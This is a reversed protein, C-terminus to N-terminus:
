FQIHSAGFEEVESLRRKLVILSTLWKVDEDSWEVRCELDERDMTAQTIFDNLNDSIDKIEILKDEITDDTWGRYLNDILEVDIPTDKYGVYSITKIEM